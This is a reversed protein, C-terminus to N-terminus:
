AIRRFSIVWVFPNISWPYKKGNTSDWLIKFNYVTPFFTDDKFDDRIGERLSDGETIEQLREVRVDTIELTIRSAWRPMFISPRWKGAYSFVGEVEDAKYYIADGKAWTERAWLRDGPRGYPCPRKILHQVNGMNSQTKTWINEIGGDRDLWMGVSDNFIMKSVFSPPQPKVVRRTMTKQGELIAKVMPTSFLIPRAKVM